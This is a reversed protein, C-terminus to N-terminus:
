LSLCLGDDVLHLFLRLCCFESILDFFLTVLDFLRSVLNVMLLPHGAFLLVGVLVIVINPLREERERTRGRVFVHLAWRGVSVVMREHSLYTQWGAM